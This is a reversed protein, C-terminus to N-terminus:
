RGREITVSVDDFPVAIPANPKHVTVEAREVRPFGLAVEAVREAVTEILDVPDREVAAVVAEALHGYHVTEDLADAAGADALSLWVTVDVVFLQGERREHEFVGHHATARLGSLRIRDGRM